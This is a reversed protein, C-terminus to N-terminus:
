RIDYLEPRRDSFVPIRSRIDTLAAMDANATVVAETDGAKILVSGLPDIVASGGGYKTGYATGCSNCLAVFMQNEVARARTLVDLHEARVSPWQSVVFLVDLGPLALTRILEPFRVDYCIVVACSVDDLQFRSLHDGKEFHRDEGMPSFLHTKGYSAACQGRRDFVYATNYLKGGREEMVSGAVINVRLAGALASFAAKTREGGHDAAEPGIQGPAFGANWTEPLVIVDPGERQATERVLAEAHAFNEEPKGPLMDMQICSIRM